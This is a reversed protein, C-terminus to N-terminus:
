INQAWQKEKHQWSVKNCIENLKHSANDLNDISLKKYNENVTLPKYM